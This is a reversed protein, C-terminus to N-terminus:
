NWRSAVPAPATTTPGSQSPSCRDNCFDTLFRQGLHDARGARADTEKHILKALQPKNIVFTPQAAIATEVHMAGEEIDHEVVLTELQNEGRQNQRALGPPM